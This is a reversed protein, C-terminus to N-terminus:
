LFSWLACSTLPKSLLVFVPFHILLPLFLSVRSIGFALDKEPQPLLDCCDVQM